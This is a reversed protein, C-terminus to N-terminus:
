LYKKIEDLGIGAAKLIVHVTGKPLDKAYYPLTVRRGDLHYIAKSPM